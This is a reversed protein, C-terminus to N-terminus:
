VHTGHFTSVLFGTGTSTRTSSNNSKITGVSEKSHIEHEVVLLMWDDMNELFHWQIDDTVIIAYVKSVNDLDAIMEDGLLAM